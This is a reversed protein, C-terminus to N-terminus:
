VTREGDAIKSAYEYGPIRPRICVLCSEILLTSSAYDFNIVAFLVAQKMMADIEEQVKAEDRGQIYATAKYSGLSILKFVLVSYSVVDSYAHLV